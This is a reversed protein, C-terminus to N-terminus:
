QGNEVTVTGVPSLTVVRQQTDTALVLVLSAARNDQWVPLVAGPTVVQGDLRAAEGRVGDPWDHAVFFEDSVDQWAGGAVQRKWVYGRPTWQLGLPDGMEAADVAQELVRAFRYSEDEVQRHTDPRLSLTVTTALVGIILMVVMVEILTFGSAPAHRPPLSRDM